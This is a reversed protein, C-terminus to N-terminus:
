VMTEDDGGDGGNMDDGDGGGGCGNGWDRGASGADQCAGGCSDAYGSASGADHFGNDSEHHLHPGRHLEYAYNGLRGHGHGSDYHHGNHLDNGNNHYRNNDNDRLYLGRADGHIHLRHLLRRHVGGDGYHGHVDDDHLHGRGSM